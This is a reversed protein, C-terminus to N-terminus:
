GILRVAPFFYAIETAASEESDSGHIANKEISTAFRARITEPAANAPDTPGMIERLRSVANERELVAVVCPGSSMFAVLSGFFPRERHVAYFGEAERRTLHTMRLAVIRFGDAEVAALVAGANGAGVADPKVITFTRM